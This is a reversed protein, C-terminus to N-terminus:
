AGCAALRRTDRCGGGIRSRWFIGVSRTLWRKAFYNTFLDIPASKLLSKWWQEKGWSSPLSKEPHEKDAECCARRFSGRTLRSLFCFGTGFPVTGCVPSEAEYEHSPIPSVIALQSSNRLHIAVSCMRNLKSHRPWTLSTKTFTTHLQTPNRPDSPYTWRNDDAGLM